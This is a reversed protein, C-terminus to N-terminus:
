QVHVRNRLQVTRGRNKIDLQVNVSCSSYKLSVPLDVTSYYTSSCYLLFFIKFGPIDNIALQDMNNETKLHRNPPGRPRWGPRKFLGVHTM